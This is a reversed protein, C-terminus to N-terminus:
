NRCIGREHTVRAGRSQKTLIRLEKITAGTQISAQAVERRAPSATLGLVEHLGMSIVELRRKMLLLLSNKNNSGWIKDQM